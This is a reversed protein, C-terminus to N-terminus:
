RVFEFTGSVQHEQGAESRFTGEVSGKVRLVQYHMVGEESTDLRDLTITGELSNMHELPDSSLVKVLAIDTDKERGLKNYNSILKSTGLRLNNKQIVLGLEPGLVGTSDQRTGTLYLHLDTKSMYMGQNRVRGKTTWSQGDITLDLLGDAVEGTDEANTSAASGSGCSQLSLLTLSLALPLILKFHSM